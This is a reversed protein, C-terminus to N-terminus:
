FTGVLTCGWNSRTNYNLGIFYQDDTDVWVSMVDGVKMSFFAGHNWTIYGYNYGDNYGYNYFGHRFYGMGTKDQNGNLRLETEYNVYSYSSGPGYFYGAMQIVCYYIGKETAQFNGNSTDLQVNFNHTGGNYYSNYTDYWNGIQAPNNNNSSYFYYDSDCYANFSYIPMNSPLAMMSFSSQIQITPSGSFSYILIDYNFYAGTALYMNVDMNFSNINPSYYMLNFNVGGDEDISSAFVPSGYAYFFSGSVVLNYGTLYVTTYPAAIQGTSNSFYSSGGPSLFNLPGTTTWGGPAAWNGNQDWTLASNLNSGFAFSTATMVIGSFTTYSRLYWTGGYDALVYLQITDGVSLNFAGSVQVDIDLNSSPVTQKAYYGVAAGSASPLTNNVTLLLYVSGGNLGYFM